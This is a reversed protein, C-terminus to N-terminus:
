AANEEGETIERRWINVFGDQFDHIVNSLEWGDGDPKKGEPLMEYEYKKDPM